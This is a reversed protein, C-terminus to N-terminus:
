AVHRRERGLAFKPKDNNAVTAAEQEAAQQIVAVKLQCNANTVELQWTPNSV